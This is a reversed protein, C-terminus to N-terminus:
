LGCYGEDVNVFDDRQKGPPSTSEHTSAHVLIITHVLDYLALHLFHTHKPTKQHKHKWVLSLNHKISHHLPTGQPFCARGKKWVHSFPSSLFLILTRFSYIFAM